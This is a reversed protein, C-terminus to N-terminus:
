ASSGVATMPIPDGGTSPVMWIRSESKEEKLNTTGITYAIWKGDPGIQPDSVRQIRFYDDVTLNRGQPQAAAFPAMAVFALFVLLIKRM